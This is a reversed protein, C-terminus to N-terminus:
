GVATGMMCVPFRLSNSRHIKEAVTLFRSEVTHINSPKKDLTIKLLLFQYTPFLFPLYLLCCLFFSGKALFVEFLHFFIFPPRVDLVCVMPWCQTLPYLNQSICLLASPPHYLVTIM